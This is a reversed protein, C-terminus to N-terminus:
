NTKFSYRGISANGRETTELGERTLLGEDVQEGIAVIVTDCPIRRVKNTALPKRRGSLDYPGGEMEMVEFAEVLGKDNGIVQV